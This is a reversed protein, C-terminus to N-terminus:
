KKGRSDTRHRGGDAEEVETEETKEELASAFPVEAEKVPVPVPVSMIQKLEKEIEVNPDITEVLTLPVGAGRKDAPMAEMVRLEEKRILKADNEQPPTIALGCKHRGIFHGAVDIPVNPIEEGAKFIFPVSDWYYVVTEDTHNRLRAQLPLRNDEDAM